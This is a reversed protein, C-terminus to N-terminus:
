PVVSWSANCSCSPSFNFAVFAGSSLRTTSRASRGESFQYPAVKDLGRNKPSSAHKEKRKSTRLLKPPSRAKDPVRRARCRSDKVFGARWTCEPRLAFPFVEPCFHRYCGPLLRSSQDCQYARTSVAPDHDTPLQRPSLARTPNPFRVAYNEDLTRRKTPGRSKDASSAPLGYDILGSAGSPVAKRCIRRHGLPLRATGEGARDDGSRENKRTGDTRCVEQAPTASGEM